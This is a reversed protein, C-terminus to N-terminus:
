TVANDALESQCELLMCCTRSHEHRTGSSQMRFEAIKRGTEHGTNTNKYGVQLTSESTSDHKNEPEGQLRLPPFGQLFLPRQSSSV